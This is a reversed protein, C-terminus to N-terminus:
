EIFSKFDSLIKLDQIFQNSLLGRIEVLVALAVTNLLILSVTARASETAPLSM